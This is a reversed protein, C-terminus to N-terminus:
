VATTACAHPYYCYDHYDDKRTTKRTPQDRPGRAESADTVVDEDARAGTATGTCQPGRGENFTEFPTGTTSIVKNTRANANDLFM